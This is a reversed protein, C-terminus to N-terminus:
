TFVCPDFRLVIYNYCDMVVRLSFYSCDWVILFVCEIKFFDAFIM